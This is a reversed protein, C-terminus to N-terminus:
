SGPHAGPSQSQELCFSAGPAVGEPFHFGPGPGGPLAAGDGAVTSGVDEPPWIGEHGLGTVYDGVVHQGHNAIGLTGACTPAAHTVTANGAAFGLTAVLMAAVILIRKYM